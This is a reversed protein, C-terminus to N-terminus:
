SLSRLSIACHHLSWNSIALSPAVTNGNLCAYVTSLGNDLSQYQGTDVACKLTGYFNYELYNVADNNQM